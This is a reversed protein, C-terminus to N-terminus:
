FHKQAKTAREECVFVIFNDKLNRGRPLHHTSSDPVSFFFMRTSILNEMASLCTCEKQSYINSCTLLRGPHYSLHKQLVQCRECKEDHKYVKMNKPLPEINHETSLTSVPSHHM